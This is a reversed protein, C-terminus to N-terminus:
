ICAAVANAVITVGEGLETLLPNVEHSDGPVMVGPSRSNLLMGTSYFTETVDNM